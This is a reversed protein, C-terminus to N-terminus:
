ETQANTNANYIQLGELHKDGKPVRSKYHVLYRKMLNLDGMDRFAFYAEREKFYLLMEMKSACSNQPQMFYPVFDERLKLASMVAWLSSTVDYLYLKTEYMRLFTTNVLRMCQADKLRAQELKLFKNMAVYFGHSKCVWQVILNRLEEPLASIRDVAVPACCARQQKGKKRM